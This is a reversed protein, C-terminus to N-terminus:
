MIVHGKDLYESETGCVNAREFYYSGSDLVAENNEDQLIIEDAIIEVLQGYSNTFAYYARDGFGVDVIADTKREGCIDGGNVTIFSYDKNGIPEYECMTEALSDIIALKNINIIVIESLSYFLDSFFMIILFILLLSYFALKKRTKWVLSVLSDVNLSLKKLM